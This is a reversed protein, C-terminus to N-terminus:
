VGGHRPAHVISTRSKTEMWSFQWAERLMKHRRAVQTHREVSGFGDKGLSKLSAVHLEVERAFKAAACERELGFDIKAIPCDWKRPM